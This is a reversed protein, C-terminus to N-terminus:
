DDDEDDDKDNMMTWCLWSWSISDFVQLCVQDVKQSDDDEDGDDDKDKM